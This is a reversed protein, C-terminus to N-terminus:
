PAVATALDESEDVALDLLPLFSAPEQAGSLAYRRNFVFCPVAQLTLQRALTDASRVNSVEADSLLQARIEADDLGIRGATAALTDIDGIDLGEVFYAHFLADVMAGSPGRRGAMRILRHADFTSPMRRIRGFNLELGDRDATDEIVSHIQRAREPGGFKAAMYADREMGGRPLDPNLQFPQWRVEPRVRPREALARLLRHRGIYCWPCTLDAFTEILM